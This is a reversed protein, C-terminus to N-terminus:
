LERKKVEVCRKDDIQKSWPMEAMYQADVPAQGELHIQSCLCGPRSRKNRLPHADLPARGCAHRWGPISKRQSNKFFLSCPAACLLSAHRRRADCARSCNCHMCSNTCTIAGAPGHCPASGRHHGARAARRRRMTTQTTSQCVLSRQKERWEGRRAECATCHLQVRSCLVELSRSVRAGPYRSKHKAPLRASDM